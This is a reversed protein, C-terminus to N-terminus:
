LVNPIVIFRDEAEPVNEMVDDLDEYPEAVDNRVRNRNLLAHTTPELGEVDVELMSAFYEVMQGVAQRLEEEEQETLEIEALDATIRLEEPNM